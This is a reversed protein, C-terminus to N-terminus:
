QKQFPRQDNDKQLNEFVISFMYYIPKGLEVLAQFTHQGDRIVFERTVKIPCESSLDNIEIRKKLVQVHGQDIRRNDKFTFKSYDNTVYIPMKTNDNFAMTKKTKTTTQQNEDLM